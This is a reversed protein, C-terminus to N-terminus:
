CTCQFRALPQTIACYKLNIFPGLSISLYQFIFPLIKDDNQLVVVGFHEGERDHLHRIVIVIIAV